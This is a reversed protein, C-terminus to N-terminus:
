WVTWTTYNRKIRQCRCDKRRSLGRLNKHVERLGAHHTSELLDLCQGLDIEVELVDGEDGFNEKMWQEARTRSAEWFYIGEGLWDYPNRSVKWEALAIRGSRLDRAFAADCGHYGLIGGM